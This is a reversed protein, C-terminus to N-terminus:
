EKIAGIMIGKVFYKQLFPYMMLIPVTAVIITAYKLNKALEGAKKNALEGMDSMKGQVLIERLVLQLPWLERNRPLFISADFWANWYGVAYFLIMVAVIPMSVPIFIRFLILFDNAGDVKASEELSVPVGSFYTRTMIMNWANLCSPLILSWRTGTLHLADVVLFYPVVGGGFFMTVVIFFMVFNRGVLWKRSLAYGGFMTLVMSLTTGVIVYFLTNKYGIFIMENAFVAKYAETTFQKPWFLVAGYAGIVSNSSLSAVFVYWLPYATFFMLLFLMIYNLSDFVYDGLTRRKFMM